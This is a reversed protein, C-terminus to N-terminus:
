HPKKFEGSERASWVLCALGLIVMVVPTIVLESDMAGAGLILLMFGAAGLLDHLQM